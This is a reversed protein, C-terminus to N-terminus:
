RRRRYGTRRAAAKQSPYRTGRITVLARTGSVGDEGLSERLKWTTYGTAKSAATLSPYRVGDIEIPTVASEGTRTEALTLASMPTANLVEFDIGFDTASPPVAMRAHAPHVEGGAPRATAARPHKDHWNGDRWNELVYDRM